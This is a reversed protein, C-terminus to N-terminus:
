CKREAKLRGGLKASLAWAPAIDGIVEADPFLGARRDGSMASM